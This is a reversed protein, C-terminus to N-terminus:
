HGRSDGRPLRTGLLQEAAEAVRPDLAAPELDVGRSLRDTIIRFAALRAVKKDNAPM